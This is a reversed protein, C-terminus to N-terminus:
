SVFELKKRKSIILFKFRGELKRHLEKDLTAIIYDGELLEIGRDVFKRKLDIETFKDKFKNIVSLALRALERESLKESVDGAIKEIEMVVQRPLVLEYGALENVFDIKQNVCSLIFNTDLVIKEMM